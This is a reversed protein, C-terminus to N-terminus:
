GPTSAQRNKLGGILLLKLCYLLTMIGKDGWGYKLLLPAGAMRNGAELYELALAFGAQRAGAKNVARLEPDDLNRHLKERIALNSEYMLKRSHSLSKGHCRILAFTNAQDLFVFSKGQLACRLWFEWDENYKLSEDFLGVTNFTKKRLLPSSIVMINNALLAALVAKGRGSVMPMWPQNDGWMSYLRKEPQETHFYRAEGYVIDAEPHLALYEAQLELKAPEILDDADLLQIFEGSAERIGNNRAASPGKNEQRFYKIRADKAALEAAVTKTQDTSGDDVIICEFNPYTQKALSQFVSPLYSSYNHCPIIVSVLKNGGNSCNNM